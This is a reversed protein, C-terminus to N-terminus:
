GRGPTALQQTLTIVSGNHHSNLTIYRGCWYIFTALKTVLDVVTNTTSIQHALKDLM